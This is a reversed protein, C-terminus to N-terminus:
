AGPRGSPGTAGGARAAPLFTGSAHVVLQGDAGDRTVRCDLFIASRGARMVEVRAELWDAPRAAAMMECTVSATVFIQDPSRVRTCAKTMATDVLMMLMGGHVMGGRNAHDQRMRIGVVTVSDQERLYMPGCLAHFPGFPEMEAFGDPVDPDTDSATSM